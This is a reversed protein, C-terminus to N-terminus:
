MTLLIVSAFASLSIASASATAGPEATTPEVATPVAATPVAATPTAGASGTPAAASGTPAAGAGGCNYPGDILLAFPAMDSSFSSVQILYKKGMEVGGEVLEPTVVEGGIIREPVNSLNRYISIIAPDDKCADPGTATDFFTTLTYNYVGIRLDEGHFGDYTVSPDKIIVVSIDGTCEATYGFYVNNGGGCSNAPNSGNVNSYFYTNNAMVKTPFIPSNSAPVVCAATITYAFNGIDGTNNVDDRTGVRIIYETGNAAIYQLRNSQGSFGKTEPCMDGPNYANSSSSVGNLVPVACTGTWVDVAITTFNSNGEVYILGVGNCTATYKFFQDHFMNLSSSNFFIEDYGDADKFESINAVGNAIVNAGACAVHAADVVAGAVLIAVVKM